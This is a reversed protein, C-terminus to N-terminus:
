CGPGHEPKHCLLDRRLAERNGLLGQLTDALITFDLEGLDASANAVGFILQFM